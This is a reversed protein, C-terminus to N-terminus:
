CFSISFAPLRLCIPGGTVCGCYSEVKYLILVEPPDM